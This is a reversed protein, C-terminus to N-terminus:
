PASGETVAVSAPRAALQSGGCVHIVEGTIFRSDESALFAIACAV